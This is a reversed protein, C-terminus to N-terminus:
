SLSQSKKKPLKSVEPFCDGVLDMKAVQLFLLLFFFPFLCCPLVTANDTNDIYWCLTRSLSNLRIKRVEKHTSGNKVLSSIVNFDVVLFVKKSHIKRLLDLWVGRGRGKGKCSLHICLFLVFIMVEVCAVCMNKKNEEFCGGSSCTVTKCLRCLRMHNFCM